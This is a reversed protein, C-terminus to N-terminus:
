HDRVPNLKNWAMCSVNNGKTLNCGYSWLAEMFPPPLEEQREGFELLLSSKVSSMDEEEEEKEEEKVSINDFESESYESKVDPELFLLFFLFIGIDNCEGVPM